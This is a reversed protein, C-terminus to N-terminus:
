EDGQRGGDQVGGVHADGRQGVEGADGGAVVLGHGDSGAHIRHAFVERFGNEGGDARADVAGFAATRGHRHKDALAVVVAKVEGVADDVDVGGEVLFQGAAVGATDDHAADAVGEGSEGNAVGAFVLAAAAVDEGEFAFAGRKFVDGQVHVAGRGIAVAIEEAFAAGVENADFFLAADLNEAVAGNHAAAADEAAGESVAEVDLLAAFDEDFVAVGFADHAGGVVHEAVGGSGGEVEAEGGDIFVAVAAVEHDGAVHLAEDLVAEAGVAVGA